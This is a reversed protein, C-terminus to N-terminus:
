GISSIDRLIIQDNQNIERRHSFMKNEIVNYNTRYQLSDFSFRRVRRVKVVWVFAGFVGNRTM